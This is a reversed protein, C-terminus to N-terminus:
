FSMFSRGFAQEITPLADPGDLFAVCHGDPSSPPMGYKHLLPDRTSDRLREPKTSMATCLNVTRANHYARKRSSYIYIHFRFIRAVRSSAHHMIVWNNEIEIAVRTAM